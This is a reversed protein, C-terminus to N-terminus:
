GATPDAVRGMFLLTSTGRDRIVFAFPHDARMECSPASRTAGVIATAAAAETGAEDVRVDAQHLADTLFLPEATDVMASFDAADSFATRMGLEILREELPLEGSFAFRPLSVSCDQETAADFLADIRASDLDAEAARLGGRENPLLLGLSLERDAYDLELLTFDDGGAMRFKGRSTMTPVSAESGSELLFPQDSTNKAEFRAAWTALFYVANVLAFRTDTTFLSPPILETIKARTGDSVWQNVTDRAGGPDSVFSVEQLPAEYSTSLVDLYPASFSTSQEGFLANASLLQYGRRHPGTLDANLAGLAHHYADDSAEIALVARMEEATTGVAGAYTMGLAVSISFPSFFLNEGATASTRYLATALQNTSRVAPEIEPTLETFVRADRATEADDDGNCATVGMCALLSLGTMFARGQRKQGVQTM